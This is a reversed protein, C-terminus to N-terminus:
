RAGLKLARGDDGGGAVLLGGGALVAWPLWPPGIRVPKPKAVVPAGVNKPKPRSRQKKLDARLFLREEGTVTVVQKWTDYGPKSVELQYTGHPAWAKYPAVGSVVTKSDRTFKVLAGEPTSVIAVQGKVNKLKILLLSHMTEAHELGKPDDAEDQYQEVYAIAKEFAGLKQHALAM